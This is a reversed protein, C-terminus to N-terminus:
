ANVASYLLFVHFVSCLVSFLSVPKPQVCTKDSAYLADKACMDELDSGYFFM